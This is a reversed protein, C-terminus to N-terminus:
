TIVQKNLWNQIVRIHNPIDGKVIIDREPIGEIYCESTVMKVPIHDSKCMKFLSDGKKGPLNYDVLVLDPKYFLHFKSLAEDVSSCVDVKVNYRSLIAEYVIQDPRNDEVLLVRKRRKRNWLYLGLYFLASFLLIDIVQEM